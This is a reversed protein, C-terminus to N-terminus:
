CAKGGASRNWPMFSLMNAMPCTGSLGSFLLGAGFFGTLILFWPSVTASLVSGALVMSGATIQVQRMVSIPVAGARGGTEVPLGAEKWAIIGGKMSYAEVSGAAAGLMRLADLSRKGSRCQLVVKKGPAQAKAPDFRSLPVLTAGPIHEGAFEDSERVDILVAAGQDLWRKAEQVDIETAAM